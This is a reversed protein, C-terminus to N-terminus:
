EDQWPKEKELEDEKKRRRFNLKIMSSIDGGHLEAICLNKYDCDWKCSTLFTRPFRVDDEAARIERASQVLERRMTRLMPRDKPLKRRRFFREPQGRAIHRLIESYDVPDLGHKRLASMYTFVDTDINKRRTLGRQTMEPIAPAKTRIENYLVGGLPKYGLITAAGYYNTLQPDLLMNDSAEFSKRTKHDWIWLLNTRLDEVILDIIVHFELGSPLTVIEDLESDVVFFHKDEDRWYRLYSRMIRRCESPLDGLDERIEEPLNYFEKTRTKHLDMWDEGDYHAQLLEHIWSGRELQLSKARPQLKMVYKYRYQNPCRRYVKVKSNSVRM